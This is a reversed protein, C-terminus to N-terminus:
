AVEARAAIWYATSLNSPAHYAEIIAGSLYWEGALPPRFEGTARFYRNPMEEEASPYVGNPKKM